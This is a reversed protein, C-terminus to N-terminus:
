RHYVSVPQETKKWLIQTIRTNNKISRRSSLNIAMLFINIKQFWIIEKIIYLFIDGDRLGGTFARNVDFWTQFSTKLIVQREWDQERDGEREGERERM